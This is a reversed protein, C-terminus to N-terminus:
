RCIVNELDIQNEKLFYTVETKIPLYMRPINLMPIVLSRNEIQLPLVAENTSVKSYFYALSLASIASDLDCSENGM